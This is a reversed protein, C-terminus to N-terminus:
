LSVGSRQMAAIDSLLIRRARGITYSPLEGSAILRDTTSKSIGLLEAAQAVPVGRSPADATVIITRGSLSRM